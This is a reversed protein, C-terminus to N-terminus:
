HAILLSSPSLIRSHSFRAQRFSAHIAISSGLNSDRTRRSTWSRRARLRKPLVRVYQDHRRPMIIYYDARSLRLPHTTYMICMVAIAITKATLLPEGLIEDFRPRIYDVNPSLTDHVGTTTQIRFIPLLHTRYGNRSIARASYANM